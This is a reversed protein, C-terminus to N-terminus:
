DEGTRGARKLDRAREEADLIKLFDEVSKHGRRSNCTKHALKINAFTTPGSHFRPVVHDRSAEDLPCYEKCLHCIARDRKWIEFVTVKQGSYFCRM